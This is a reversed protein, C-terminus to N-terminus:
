DVNQSKAGSRIVLPVPVEYNGRPEEPPPSIDPVDLV